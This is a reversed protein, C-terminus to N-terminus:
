DDAQLLRLRNGNIFEHPPVSLNHQGPHGSKRFIRGATDFRANYCPETFGNGGGPLPEFRIRCGRRTERALFVFYEAKISRMPNQSGPPQTSERSEPDRLQEAGLQQLRRIDEESRHYIWVEGGPWDVTRWDGRHLGSLAVEQRWPNPRGNGEETAPQRLSAVFPISVVVLGALLLFKLLVSLYLRKIRSMEDPLCDGSM